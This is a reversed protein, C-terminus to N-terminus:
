IMTKTSWIFGRHLVWFIRSARHGKLQDIKPGTLFPNDPDYLYSDGKPKEYSVYVVVAGLIAGSLFGVGASSMFPSNSLKTVKSISAVSIKKRNDTVLSDGELRLTQTSIRANNLTIQWHHDQSLLISNEFIFSGVLIFVYKM